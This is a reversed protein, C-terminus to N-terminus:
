CYLIFRRSSFECSAEGFVALGSNVLLIWFILVLILSLLRLAGYIVLYDYMRQYASPCNNAVFHEVLKEWRSGNEVTVSFSIKRFEYRVDGLIGDLLKPEYFGVPKLLFFSLFMPWLPFLFLFGLASSYNWLFNKANRIFLDKMYSGSLVDEATHTEKQIWINSPYSLANHVFKEIVLSSVYAGLHGALYSASLWLIGLVVNDVTPSGFHSVRPLFPAGIVTDLTYQALVLLVAGGPLYVALDYTAFPLSKYGGM